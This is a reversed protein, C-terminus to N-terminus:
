IFYYVSAATAMFLSSALHAKAVGNGVGPGAKVTYGSAAADDAVFNSVAADVMSQSARVKDAFYLNFELAYTGDNAMTAKVVKSYLFGTLDAMALDMTTEYAVVNILDMVSRKARNAGAQSKQILQDIITVDEDDDGFEITVDFQAIKNKISSANPGCVFTCEVGEDTGECAKKKLDNCIKNEKMGYYPSSTDTFDMFDMLCGNRDLQMDYSMEDDEYSESFSFGFCYNGEACATLDGPCMDYNEGLIANLLINAGTAALEDAAQLAEPLLDTLYSEFNWAYTGCQRCVAEPKGKAIVTAVLSLLL